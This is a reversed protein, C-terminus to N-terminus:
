AMDVLTMNVSRKGMYIQTQIACVLDVARGLNQQIFLGLPSGNCNFAIVHSWIGSHLCRLMIRLHRSKVESVKSIMVNRILVVPERNGGGFPQLKSLDEILKCIADLTLICDVALSRNEVAFSIQKDLRTALFSKFITVKNSLISFGAAMKHGGGKLLLGDKVGAMVADGIDICEISRCSAKIISDGNELLESGIIAPRHYLEKIRAAVIGIVGQHWESSYAFIINDNSSVSTTIQSIASAIMQQEVIARDQNLGKLKIALQRALIKDDTSLIRAGLDSKGLRGGANIMPGFVFGLHYVALEGFVSMTEAMASIGINSRKNMVKLGTTVLARNLHVLPVMDCITGLAVLDLFSLLQRRLDDCDIGISKTRLRMIIAVCFMFCVGVGCLYTLDSGEDARNPNLVAISDPKTFTGMHHDVVIVDLGHAAAVALPEFAVTGCDVTIVVEIGMSHLKLMANANPGYGELVRDPVYLEVEVNLLRFFRILLAASTAGDVDYDAFIAVRKKQIVALIIYEVAVDMDKLSFPDPMCHAIKPDLFHQFNDETIHAASALYHAIFSSVDYGNCLTRYLVENRNRARWAFGRASPRDSLGDM